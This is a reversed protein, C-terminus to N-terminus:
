GSRRKGKPGYYVGRTRRGRSERLWRILALQEKCDAVTKKYYKEEKANRIASVIYEEAEDLLATAGALDNTRRAKEIRARAKQYLCAERPYGRVEAENIREDGEEIHDQWHLITVLTFFAEPYKPDLHTAKEAYGKAKNPDHRYHMLFFAMRDFLAANNSDLRIAELFWEQAEKIDGRRTALKAAKAPGTRFAEAVRDSVSSKEAIQLSKYRHTITKVVKDITDAIMKSEVTGSRLEQLKIQFFERAMANLVLDYDTGYEAIYGFYTEDLATQFISHAVGTEGCIWGITTSDLPVELIALAMFVNQQEGSIRRWVDEYLFETLGAKADRLIKQYGLDLSQKTHGIYRALM